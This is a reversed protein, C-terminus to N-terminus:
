LLKYKNHTVKGINLRSLISDRALSAYKVENKPHTSDKEYFGKGVVNAKHKSIHKSLFNM